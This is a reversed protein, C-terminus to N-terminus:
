LIKIQPPLSSTNMNNLKYKYIIGRATSNLSSQFFTLTTAFLCTLLSYIHAPCSSGIGPVLTSTATSSMSPNTLEEPSLYVTEQELYKPVPSVFIFLMYFGM